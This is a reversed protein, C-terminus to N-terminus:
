LQKFRTSNITESQLKRTKRLARKGVSIGSSSCRMKQLLAKPTPINYVHSGAFQSFRDFKFTDGPKITGTYFFWWKAKSIYQFTKVRKDMMKMQLAIKWTYDDYDVPVEIRPFIRMKHKRDVSLASDFSIFTLVM